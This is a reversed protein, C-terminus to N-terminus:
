RVSGPRVRRRRAGKGGPLEDRLRVETDELQAVSAPDSYSSARFDTPQAGEGAGGAGVILQPFPKGRSGQAVECQPVSGGYGLRTVM